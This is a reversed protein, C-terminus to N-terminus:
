LRNQVVKQLIEKTLSDAEKRNIKNKCYKTIRKLPGRHKRKKALITWLGCNETTKVTIVGLTGSTSWYMGNPLFSENWNSVLGIQELSHRMEEASKFRKSVDPNMAKNTFRRLSNPVFDRYRTRDPYKADKIAQRIDIPDISPLFSDGNILRYFTVGCAYIDSSKSYDAFKRVEPALHTMYQYNTKIFALDLKSIDPLALGFDSLKGEKSDGILINAPKIDRHLINQQHAHELGRLVDIMLKKARTIAIFGGSAENELSKNKLYEMSLYIKTKDFNGTDLIRVVNSHEAQKLCQAEQFYNAQNIIKNHPVLKVACIQNLGVENAYWVEGFYGNGLRKKLDFRVSMIKIRKM